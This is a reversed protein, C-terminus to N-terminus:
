HQGDPTAPCVATAWGTRTLSALAASTAHDALAAGRVWSTALAALFLDRARVDERALGDRQAASLFEETTTIFGACSVALPSTDTMTAARLPEPLGDFASAWTAVADLWGALANGTDSSAIRLREREIVIAEDRASLLEALLSERTPFHRYLTATGVGAKKAIADLPGAVGHEAFHQEATDLILDRNRLADSRPGRRRGTDTSAM